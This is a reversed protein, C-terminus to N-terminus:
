HRHVHSLISDIGAGHILTVGTTPYLAAADSILNETKGSEGRTLGTCHHVRDANIM